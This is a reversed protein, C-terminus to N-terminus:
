SDASPGIVPRLWPHGSDHIVILERQRDKALVGVIALRFGDSVRDASHVDIGPGRGPRDVVIAVSIVEAAPMAHVLKPGIGGAIQGIFLGLTIRRHAHISDRM